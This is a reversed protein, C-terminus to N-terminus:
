GVEGTVILDDLRDLARRLIDGSHGDSHSTWWAEVCDRLEAATEAPGLVVGHGDLVVSPARVIHLCEDHDSAYVLWWRSTHEMTGAVVQHDADSSRYFFNLATPM